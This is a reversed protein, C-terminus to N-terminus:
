GVFEVTHGVTALLTSIENERDTAPLTTSDNVEMLYGVVYTNNIRITQHPEVMWSAASPINKVKAPSSLGEIQGETAGCQLLMHGLCCMKHDPEARLLASGHPGQGRYWTARDIVYHMKIIEMQVVLPYEIVLMVVLPVVCTLNIVITQVPDSNSDRDVRALGDM